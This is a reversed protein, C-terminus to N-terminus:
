VTFRCRGRPLPRNQWRWARAPPSDCGQAVQVARARIGLLALKRNARPIGDIREIMVTVSGDHNRNVAFAPSSSAAGLALALATGAGALGVTTGALLRPRTRRTRRAPPGAQQALDSGHDRMLDRWLSDEFKSM